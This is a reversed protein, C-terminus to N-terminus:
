KKAQVIEISDLNRRWHFLYQQAIGLYKQNCNPLNEGYLESLVRKMWVDLPFADYHKCGYLLACDAVKPGVGKIKILADQAAKLPLNSLGYIDIEKSQVKQAADIIYKARFGARISSLDEATLGSLKKSSPFTYCNEDIEEGFTECLRSIIGKIRPINNNQSIIFSCLAEWPDQNLIRVGYYAKVAESLYADEDFSRVIAKYDRELDFYDKWIM